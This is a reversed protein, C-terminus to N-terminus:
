DNKLCPTLTACAEWSICCSLYQGFQRVALLTAGLRSAEDRLKVDDSVLLRPPPTDEGQYFRLSDLLVKDARHNGKKGGSFVIQVNPAATTESYAPADFVIRVQIAPHREVARAVDMIFRRREKVDTAPNGTPRNYLSSLGCLVNHGDILLISPNPIDASMPNTETQAAAHAQALAATIALSVRKERVEKEKRLEATVRDLEDAKQALAKETKEVSTRLIEIRECAAKLQREIFEASRTM